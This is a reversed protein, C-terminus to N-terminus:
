AEPQPPAEPRPSGDHPLTEPNHHRPSQELWRRAVITGLNYTTTKVEAYPVPVDEGTTLDLAIQESTLTVYRGDFIGLRRTVFSPEHGAVVCMEVTNQYERAIRVLNDWFRKLICLVANSDCAKEWKLIDALYLVLANLLPAETNPDPAKAHHLLFARCELPTLAQCEKYIEAYTKSM